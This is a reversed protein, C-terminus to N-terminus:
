IKGEYLAEIPFIMGYDNWNLNGETIEYQIFKGEDLYKKISPHNSKSVFPEFDVIKLSGDNFSIEIMLNGMYRTSEIKLDEVEVENYDVIIKM